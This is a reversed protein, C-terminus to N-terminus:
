ASWKEEERRAEDDNLRGAIDAAVEEDEAQAIPTGDQKRVKDGDAEVPFDHPELPPKKSASMVIESRTVNLCEMLYWRAEPLSEVAIFRRHSPEM